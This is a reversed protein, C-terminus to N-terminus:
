GIQLKNKSPSMIRFRRNDGDNKFFLKAYTGREIEKLTIDIEMPITTINLSPIDGIKKGDTKRLPLGGEKGILVTGPLQLTENKTYLKLKASNDGIDPQINYFVEKIPCNTVNCQKGTSYLLNEGEGVAVYVSFYYDRPELSRIVFASNRLYEARTFMKKVAIPDNELTPFNHHSYMVLVKGAGEPWDWELYLRGSNIYGNLNSVDNISTASQFKGITAISGDVTVPLIYLVGQFDIPIRVNGDTIVPISTGIGSLKGAPISEKYSVRFKQTSSFIHVTGKKPPTWRIDLRSGKIITIGLDIVPPPPGTPRAQRALGTSGKDNEFVAVVRLGYLRDNKLGSVVAGNNRIGQLSIGDGRRSPTSDEKMWVEVAKANIPTKWNLTIRKNESIVELNEVEPTYIVPGVMTGRQSFTKGRKSYVGYYYIVGPEANADKLLCQATEGLNQGDRANLPHSYIKRVIRYTITGNSPSKEWRLSVGMDSVAELNPPPEPPYNAKGEAAADCDKCEMLARSYFDMAENERSAAEAKRVWNKAVNIKATIGAELSLLQHSSDLQKLTVLAEHAKYYQRDNVLQDLERAAAAIKKEGAAIERLLAEAQPNGPWSILAKRLYKGAKKLDGRAKAQAADRILPIANPMDGIPFGCQSCNINTSPNAIKCKPCNLELPTGCGSCNRSSSSNIVGCIGCQKLNDTTYKAPRQVAWKKKGAYQIIHEEAEEKSLKFERAKKVLADFAEVGITGEMGAIDIAKNLEELNQYALTAEYMRRTDETKFVNLCHGTLELSATLRANKHSDRKLEANKENSKAMLTKRSSSPSLELFDYLSKKGVIKLSDAIKKEVAPELRKVAAKKSEGKVIPVKIRKRVVEEPLSFRQALKKFESETIHKKSSIIQIANDLDKFIKKEKQAIIRGAEEAEQKRKVDDMMVAKIEQLMDLYLQAERGRTPHIRLTSWEAQKKNVAANITNVNNEPPSIQLDLLIYFNERNM